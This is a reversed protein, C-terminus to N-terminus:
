CQSGAAFIWIMLTWPEFNSEEGGIRFRMVISADIMAVAMTM